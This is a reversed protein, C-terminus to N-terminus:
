CKALAGLFLMMVMALGLLVAADFVIEWWSGPNGALKGSSPLLTPPPKRLNVMAAPAPQRTCYADKLEATALDGEHESAEKDLKAVDDSMCLLAAALVGQVSNCEPSCHEDRPHTRMYALIEAAHELVQSRDESAIIGTTSLIRTAANM